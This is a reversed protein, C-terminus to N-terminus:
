KNNIIAIAIDEAKQVLFFLLLIVIIGKIATVWRNSTNFFNIYTLATYAIIIPLEIFSTDLDPWILKLFAILSVLILIFSFSYLQSLTIEAYNYKEKRFLLWTFGAVMPIAVPIVFVQYQHFYNAEAVFDERHYFRILTELVMYRVLANISICIFFMSFPKQHRSRKGEIYEREMTGPSVTLQKLTYGFGKEFHTFFHFVDHLLSKVSIRKTEYLQGCINCYKGAGENGCSKCTQIHNTSTSM